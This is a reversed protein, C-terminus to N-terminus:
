LEGAVLHTDNHTFIRGSSYSPKVHKCILDLESAQLAQVYGPFRIGYREQKIREAFDDPMYVYIDADVIRRSSFM